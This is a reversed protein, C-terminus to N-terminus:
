RGELLMELLEKSEKPSFGLKKQIHDCVREKTLTLVKEAM